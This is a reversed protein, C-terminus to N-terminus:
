SVEQVYVLVVACVGLSWFFAFRADLPLVLQPDHEERLRPLLVGIRFRELLVLHHLSDRLYSRALRWPSSCYQVPYRVTLAELSLTMLSFFPLSVVLPVLSNLSSYRM